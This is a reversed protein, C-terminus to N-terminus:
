FQGSGMAELVKKYARSESGNKRLDRLISQQTSLAYEKGSSSNQCLLLEIEKLDPVPYGDFTLLEEVSRTIDKELDVIDRAVQVLTEM